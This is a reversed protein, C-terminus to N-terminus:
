VSESGLFHVIRANVDDPYEWVPLHGCEPYVHLQANPILRAARIGHRVPLVPDNEGWLIMTPHLMQPLRDVFSTRQGTWSLTARSTEIFAEIAGPTKWSEVRREPWGDPIRDSHYCLRRGFARVSAVSTRQLAARVLPPALAGMRYSWAVQRGLGAASILVLRSVKNPLTAVLNLAVAGGGSMAVISARDVGLDDLLRAIFATYFALDWTSQVSPPSGGHGPADPAIVRYGKAIHPLVPRWEDASGGIGHLLIVPDGSGAELVRYM